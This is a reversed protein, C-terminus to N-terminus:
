VDIGPVVDPQQQWTVVMDLNTVCALSSSLRPATLLGRCYYGAM